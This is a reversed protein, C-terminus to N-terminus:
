RTGTTGAPASLVRDIERDSAPRGAPADQSKADEFPAFLSEGPTMCGRLVALLLLVIGGVWLWGFLPNGPGIIRLGRQWPWVRFGGHRAIADLALRYRERAPEPEVKLAQGTMVLQLREREERFVRRAERRDLKLARLVSRALEAAWAFEAHKEGDNVLAALADQTEAARGALAHGYAAAAANWDWTSDRLDRALVAAAVKGAEDYRHQHWLTLVQNAAVWGQLDDRTECGDLWAATEAHLGSNALAYGCKGYTRPNQRMWDGHASILEPVIGAAERMDGIMELFVAVPEAAADGAREIWKTFHARVDWQKRHCARRTFLAAFSMCATEDAVAAELASDLARLCRLSALERELFFVFDGPLMAGRVVRGLATELAPKDDNRALLLVQWADKMAAAGDTAPLQLATELSARDNQRWLERCLMDLLWANAPEARFRSELYPALGTGEKWQVHSAAERERGADLLRKVEAFTADDPM